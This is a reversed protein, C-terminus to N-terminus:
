VVLIHRHGSCQGLKQPPFPLANQTVPWVRKPGGKDGGHRFGNMKPRIYDGGFICGPQSVSPCLPAREIQLQPQTVKSSPRVSSWRRLCNAIQKAHECAVRVEAPCGGRGKSQQSLLLRTNAKSVISVTLLAESTRLRSLACLFFPKLPLPPTTSRLAFSCRADPSAILRRGSRAFSRACDNIANLRSSIFPTETCFPSM